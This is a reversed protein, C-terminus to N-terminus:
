SLSTVAAALGVKGPVSLNHSTQADHQPRLCTGTDSGSSRVRLGPTKQAALVQGPILAPSPPLTVLGAPALSCPQGKPVSPFSQLQM